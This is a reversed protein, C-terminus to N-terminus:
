IRVKTRLGGALLGHLTTRSVLITPLQLLFINVLLLDFPFYMHFFVTSFSVTYLISYMNRQSQSYKKGWVTGLIRMGFCRFHVNEHTDLVQLMYFILIASIKWKIDLGFLFYFPSSLVLTIVTNIISPILKEWISTDRM